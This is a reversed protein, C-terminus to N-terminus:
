GGMQPFEVLLEQARPDGAAGAEGRRSPESSRYRGDYYECQITDVGAIAPMGIGKARCLAASQLGRGDDLLVVKELAIDHPQLVLQLLIEARM